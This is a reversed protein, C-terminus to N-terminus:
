IQAYNQLRKIMSFLNASTLHWRPLPQDEHLHIYFTRVNPNISRWPPLQEVGDGTPASSTTALWVGLAHRPRRGKEKAAGRSAEPQQLWGALAQLSSPSSGPNAYLPLRLNPESALPGLPQSRSLSPSRLFACRGPVSRSAGRSFRLWTYRKM